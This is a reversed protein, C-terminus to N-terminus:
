SLTIPHFAEIVPKQRRGEAELRKGKAIAKTLFSLVSIIACVGIRPFKRVRRWGM